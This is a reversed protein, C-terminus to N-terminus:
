RNFIVKDVRDGSRRIYLQGDAPNDIRRGQMDYYTAASYNHDAITGLTSSPNDVTFYIDGLATATTGKPYTLQAVYRQGDIANSFDYDIAVQKNQGSTLYVPASTSTSTVFQGENGELKYINVTLPTSLYGASCSVAADFHMTHPDVFENDGALTFSTASLTPTGPNANVTCPASYLVRGTSPEFLVFTYDGAAFTSRAVTQFTSYFTVEDTTNGTIDVAVTEGMAQLTIQSDAVTAFGPAVGSLIEGSGSNTLRAKVTYYNDLYFGSVFDVESAELTSAAPVSVTATGNTITLNVYQVASIEQLMREWEGGNVRCAPYVKYTGDASPISVYYQSFGRYQAVTSTQGTGLSTTQGSTDVFMAGLEVTLSGSSLNFFGSNQGSATSIGLLLVNNQVSGTLNGMQTLPTVHATDSGTPKQIGLIAEQNFNFGLGSGGGIGVGQPQLATLKFYGDYAGGWGWNFHFYGDTSYGDCVFAHGETGDYNSGAYLVPGVETLNDYVMQEWEDLGYFNRNAAYLGKDYGFYDTLASVANATVAGSESASYNMKVGYGCSKMLYAVASGQATTFDPTTGTYTYSDIMDTWDFTGFDMSYSNGYSDTYSVSGTGAAPWEHYKMVQALATAVCGTVARAGNIEPCQDNFPADQNWRTAVMPAIAQRSAAKRPISVYRCTRAEAIQAAYGDLWWKLQPPLTTGTEAATGYGLLATVEDDASVVLFGDARTTFVYAAPTGAATEATFSLRPTNDVLTRTAAPMTANKDCLRALAEAPSLQRATVATVAAMAATLAILRTRM